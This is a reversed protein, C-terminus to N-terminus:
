GYGKKNHHLHVLTSCAIRVLSHSPDLHALFIIEVKKAPQEEKSKGM